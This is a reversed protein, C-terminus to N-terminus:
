LSSIIKQIFKEEKELNPKELLLPQDAFKKLFIEDKLLECIDKYNNKTYNILNVFSKENFDQSINNDAWTIPLCKGMFADPVKECYYGPYLSNEPCLNFAYNKMIEIKKFNSRNHNKINKDFYPGYGDITFHTSFFNYISTRPEILHSTFFCMNKKKNIFNHGQPRMLSEINYYGGFRKRNTNEHYIGNNSWDIFNKWVPFRLHNENQVGLDSSISFDSKIINWRINDTSYFIRIPTNKRNFLYLDLNPYYKEPNFIKEKFFNYCHRKLTYLDYVGIFLLDSNKPAVIEIKKKSLKKLLHIFISEKFYPIWLFALKLTTM